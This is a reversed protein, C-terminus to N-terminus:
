SFTTSLKNIYLMSFIRDAIDTLAVPISNDFIHFSKIWEMPREVHIWLFAICRTVVLEKESLQSRGHLFPPINWTFVEWSFIMRLILNVIQWWQTEKKYCIWCVAREQWPNIQYVDLSSPLFLHWLVMLGSASLLKQLTTRRITWFLDDASTWTPSAAPHLKWNCWPHSKNHPVKDQITTAHESEGVRKCQGYLFSKFNCM